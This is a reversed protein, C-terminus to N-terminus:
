SRSERSSRQQNDFASHVLKGFLANFGRSEVDAEYVVRVSEEVDDVVCLAEM